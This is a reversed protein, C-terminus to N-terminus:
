CSKLIIREPIEFYPIRLFSARSSSDNIYWSSILETMNNINQSPLFEHKIWAKLVNTDFLYYKIYKTPLFDDDAYGHLLYEPLYYFEGKIKKYRDQFFEITLTNYHYYKYRLAKLQVGTNFNIVADIGDDVGESWHHVIVNNTNFLEKLLPEQFKLCQESFDIDNQISLAFGKFIRGM